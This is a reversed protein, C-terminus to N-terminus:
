LYRLLLYMTVLHITNDMMIYVFVSISTNYAFEYDIETGPNLLMPPRKYFHHHLWLLWKYRDVIYHSLFIGVIIIWDWRGVFLCVALTYLLCHEMCYTFGKWGPNKKNVAMAQTQFLYDGVLHGLLLELM